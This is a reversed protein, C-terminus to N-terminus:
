NIKLISYNVKIFVQNWIHLIYYFKPKGYKETEEKQNFKEIFCEITKGTTLIDDFIVINQEGSKDTIWEGAIRKISLEKVEGSKWDRYKNGVFVGKIRQDYGMRKLFDTYRKQSGNDPFAIYFSEQQPFIRELHTSIIWGLVKEMVEKDIFSRKNDLLIDTINSHPDFIYLNNYQLTKLIRIFTQLTFTEGNQETRDLRAYPMYMIFLSIEAKPHISRVTEIVTFLDMFDEPSSYYYSITINESMLIQTSTLHYKKTGDPFLSIHYDIPQMVIIGQQNIHPIGLKIM